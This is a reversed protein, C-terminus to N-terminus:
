HKTRMVDAIKEAIVITPANTNGGILSPMVSADVVRLGEVGRVRCDLDVVSDQDSGMRCSGVPHYITEAKRRIFAELAADDEVDRGPFMEEGMHQKLPPAALMSRGIRTGRKLKELDDAHDLYNPDILPDAMPDPSKLGIRGRSKPRLDCCHLTVGHARIRNQGHQDSAVPLFHYQLDPLPEEPTSRVFAGAEAFNSTLLGTRNRRYDRTAKLGMLIGRLTFAFGLKTTTRNVISVDLHDQMNRGVQPRDAILDIGFEALEAGAGIGSLQLLQPSNVAGGCLLVEANATVTEHQGQRRYEVGTARTGDFAVRTAHALDIIELNPRDVGELYGHYASCREGNKQTLQYLGAGEQRPGNFDENGAIQNAACAEVYMRSMPNPSRPDAVNLPGGQGHLDDTFRENNESRRFYPLLDEWAWGTCGEQASWRDYDARHGRIYVMGNVASSGGMAKGRPWFLERGNLNKQPETRFLWNRNPDKMTKMIGAPMRVSSDQKAPGAELLCVSVDPDETLRSALVCGASGGGVIVYDFAAM